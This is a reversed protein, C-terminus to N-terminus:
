AVIVAPELFGVNDEAIAAYVDGQIGPFMSLSVLLSSLGQPIAMSQM